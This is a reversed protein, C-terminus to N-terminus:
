VEAGTQGAVWWSWRSSRHVGVLAVGPEGAAVPVGAPLDGPCVQRLATEGPNCPRREVPPSPCSVPRKARVGLGDGVGGGLGAAGLEGGDLSGGWSWAGPGRRWGRGGGVRRRRM